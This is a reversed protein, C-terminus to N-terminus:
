KLSVGSKDSIEDEPRLASAIRDSGPRKWYGREGLVLGATAPDLCVGQKRHREFNSPTSFYADCAACQCYNTGDPLMSAM